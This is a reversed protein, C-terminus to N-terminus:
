GERNIVATAPGRIHLVHVSRGKISFLVRYRGVILQRIEESFEENEPAIPFRKPTTRLQQLVANRLQRLWEQAQQKGWVRCGWDFSERVEVQASEEIVVAFRKM